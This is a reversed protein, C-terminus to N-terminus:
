AEKDYVERTDLKKTSTRIFIRFSPPKEAVSATFFDRSVMRKKAVM